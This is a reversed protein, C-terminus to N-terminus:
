AKDKSSTKKRRQKPPAVPAPPPEDDPFPPLGLIRRRLYSGVVGLSALVPVIVFAGLIGTFIVAAVIAIFVLGEHMHVSRGLIHPRLWINKVNILVM